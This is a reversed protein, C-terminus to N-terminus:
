QALRLTLDAPKVGSSRADKWFTRWLALNLWIVDVVDMLNM